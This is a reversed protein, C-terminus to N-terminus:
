PRYRRRRCSPSRASCAVPRGLELVDCQGCAPFRALGRMDDCLYTPRVDSPALCIDRASALGTLVHMSDIGAAVAGKIDTDLNDGIALPREAEM